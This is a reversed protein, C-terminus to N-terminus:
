LQDNMILVVHSNRGQQSMRLFGVGRPVTGFGSPAQVELAMPWMTCPGVKFVGLDGSSCKTGRGESRLFM